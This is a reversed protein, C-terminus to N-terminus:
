KESIAELAALIRTMEQDALTRDRAQWWNPTLGCGIAREVRHPVELLIREAQEVEIDLRGQAKLENLRDRLMALVEYDQLGERFAEWHKTDHITRAGLFVPGYHRTSGVVYRNWSGNGRTYSTLGVDCYAWFGTGTM